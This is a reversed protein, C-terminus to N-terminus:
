AAADTDPEIWTVTAVEAGVAVRVGGEPAEDIELLKVRVPV